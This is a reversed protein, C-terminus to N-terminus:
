PKHLRAAGVSRQIPISQVGTCVNMGKEWRYHQGRGPYGYGPIENEVTSFFIYWFCTDQIPSGLVIKTAHNPKIWLCAQKNLLSLQIRFLTVWEQLLSKPSRKYHKNWTSLAHITEKNLVLLMLVQYETNFLHINVNVYSSQFVQIAM